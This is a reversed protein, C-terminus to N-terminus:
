FREMSLMLLPSSESSNKIVEKQPAVEVPEAIEGLESFRDTALLSAQSRNLPNFYLFYMSASMSNSARPYAKAIPREHDRPVSNKDSNPDRTRYSKEKPIVWSSLCGSETGDLSQARFLSGFVHSWRTPIFTAQLTYSSYVGKEVSTSLWNVPLSPGHARGGGRFILRQM